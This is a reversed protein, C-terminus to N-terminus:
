PDSLASIPRTPAEVRMLFPTCVVLAEQRKAGTFHKLADIGLGAGGGLFAGLLSVAM